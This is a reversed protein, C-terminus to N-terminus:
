LEYDISEKITHIITNVNSRRRVQTSHSLISLIEDRVEDTAGAMFYNQIFPIYLCLKPLINRRDVESLEVFCCGFANANGRCKEFRCLGLQAATKMHNEGYKKDAVDKRKEDRLMYGMKSYDVDKLGCNKLMYPVTYYADKFDSFQSIDKKAIKAPEFGEKIIKLIDSCKYKKLVELLLASKKEDELLSVDKHTYFVKM